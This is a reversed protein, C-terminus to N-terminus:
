DWESHIFGPRDVREYKHAGFADRQAQTLNQPLSASRYSDFYSLASTHAPMPIGAYAARAVVQRWAAQTNAMTAALAPDRLLNALGPSAAFAHRVPDLLKARIICGGKWIRATESLNINWKYRDSGARILAMGQAYDCLRAAYLADALAAIM